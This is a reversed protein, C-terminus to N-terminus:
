MAVSRKPARGPPAAKLGEEKFVRRVVNPSIGMLRAIERQRAGARHLAKLRALDVETKYPSRPRAEVGASALRRSVQGASLGVRLGVQTTSLGSDYLAVITSEDVRREAAHRQAHETTTLLELNEIRNDAPDHNIHHVQEDATLPRGLHRQMVVRHEYAEIQQGTSVTWRLRIYGTTNAYRRPEGEPIPEDAGLTRVRGVWRVPNYHLFIRNGDKDRGPMPPPLATM